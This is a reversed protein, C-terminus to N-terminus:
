GSVLTIGVNIAVPNPIPLIERWTMDMQPWPQRSCVFVRPTVRYPAAEIAITRSDRSVSGVIGSLHRRHGDRHCKYGPKIAEIKHLIGACFAHRNDNIRFFVAIRFIIVHFQPCMEIGIAALYWQDSM